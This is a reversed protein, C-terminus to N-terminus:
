QKSAEPMGPMERILKEEHLRKIFTFGEFWPGMQYDKVLNEQSHLL